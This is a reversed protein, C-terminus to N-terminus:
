LRSFLRPLTLDFGLAILELNVLSVNRHGREVDALYSRDLGLREALEVQTWGRRQRLSRLRQGFRVRIDGTMQTVYHRTACLRCLSKSCCYMCLSAPVGKPKIGSEWLAVTRMPARQREPFNVVRFSLGKGFMRSPAKM